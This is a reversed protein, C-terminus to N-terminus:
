ADTFLLDFRVEFRKREDAAPLFAERVADPVPIYIRDRLVMTATPFRGGGSETAVVQQTQLDYYLGFEGSHHEFVFLVKQGGWVVSTTHPQLFFDGREERTRESLAIFARYGKVPLEQDEITLLKAESSIDTRLIPPAPGLELPADPAIAEENAIVDPVVDRAAQAAASDVYQINREVIYTSRSVAEDMSLLGELYKSWLSSLSDLDALEYEFVDRKRRVSKLFAEAGQRTSSPVYDAVKPFVINRVFDKSMSSFADYEERYLALLMSFSSADPDLFVGLPDAAPDVFIALGHSLRGLGVAAELFYDAALISTVRFVAGQEEISWSSPPKEDLVTPSDQVLDIACYQRFYQAECQRRPNQTATVVLPTDDTAVAEIISSDSGEYVLISSQQSRTKL